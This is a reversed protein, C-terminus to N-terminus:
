ENALFCWVVCHVGLAFKVTIIVFSPIILVGVIRVLVYYLLATSMCSSTATQPRTKLWANLALILFVLLHPYQKYARSQRSDRIIMKLNGIM